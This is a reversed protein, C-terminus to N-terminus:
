ALSLCVYLSCDLTQSYFGTNCDLTFFQKIKRSMEMIRGITHNVKDIQALNWEFLLQLHAFYM